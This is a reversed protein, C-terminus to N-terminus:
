SAAKVAAVLPLTAPLDRWLLKLARRRILMSEACKGRAEMADILDYLVLIDINYEGLRIESITLLLRAKAEVSWLVADRFTREGRTMLRKFLSCKRSM